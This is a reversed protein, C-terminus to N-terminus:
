NQPISKRNSAVIMEAVREFTKAAVDAGCLARLESAGRGFPAMASVRAIKDRVGLSTSGRDLGLVEDLPAFGKGCSRCHYCARPIVLQAHLTQWTKAYDKKCVGVCGCKCPALSGVYGRGEQRTVSEEIKREIQRGLEETIREIEDIKSGKHPLREELLKGIEEKLRRITEDRSESVM